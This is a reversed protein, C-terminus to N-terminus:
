GRRYLNYIEEIESKALASSDYLLTDLGLWYGHYFASADETFNTVLPFYEQGLSTKVKTDVTVDSSEIKM